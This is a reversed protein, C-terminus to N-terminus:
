SSSKSVLFILAHCLFSWFMIRHLSDALDYLPSRLEPNDFMVYPSGFHIRTLFSSIYSLTYISALSLYFM